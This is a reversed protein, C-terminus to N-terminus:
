PVAFVGVLGVGTTNAVGSVIATYAGPALTAIIAPELPNNPQFGSQQIAVVDAPNAQVQWNDNFAVTAQDSARVLTLQPNLLPDAIGYNALSPGAVNIVVKKASAGGVIFGAIMVDNGTQVQGRTSINILPADPRDVEFLGVLGLGTTNNVGSVVATYAGPALVLILAPEQPHNPQFGSAQIMSVAGAPQNQWDDNAGMVANDSARVVTLTPNALANAIGYSALSPGAVNIVVTKAVSGSIIFGAIMVDNGTQVRGRTSINTLRPSDAPTTVPPASAADIGFRMPPTGGEHAGVDPAAGTYDDNFNAIRAGQDYGPTGPALQYNGGAEIQWGHGPAYTPTAVIPNTVPGGASGNFLDWGFDNGSGVEGYASWTRWNEFINNRSVTNTVPTTPGTGWIGGSAGLGYLSGPERAQLMTNHFIYRRGSGRAPDSGAKFMVQRDDQDPPVKELMRSRNYVNRFLYIPGNTVPTTAIGTATRDMYNGWIRVNTDAGEAEIADDWSHSLKNGYIDSDANPFGAGTENAGGGIIDNYYHGATSYIENHRIVHNGGCNFFTVAQPGEPHGDSWSNTGYRPEHIRNRQVTVRQLTPTACVAHVASDQEIGWSGSRQRGWGTMDNDEIIVDTVNPSIRVADQQAGRLTLNHVIVYSANIVVNYPLLNQADLVAGAVGEYVV